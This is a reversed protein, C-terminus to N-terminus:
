FVFFINSKIFLANLLEPFFIWFKFNWEKEEIYLIEYLLKLNDYFICQIPNNFNWLILPICLFEIQLIKGIDFRATLFILKSLTKLIKSGLREEDDNIDENEEKIICKKFSKILENTLPIAFMSVEFKFEDILRKLCFILDDLDLENLLKFYIQFIKDLNEKVINSNYNKLEFLEPLLIAASTQLTINNVFSNKDNNIKHSLESKNLDHKTNDNLSDEDFLISLIKITLNGIFFLNKIEILSFYSKVIHLCKDV